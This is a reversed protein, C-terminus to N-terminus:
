RDVGARLPEPDRPIPRRPSDTWFTGLQVQRGTRPGLDVRWAARSAPLSGAGLRVFRGCSALRSPGDPAARPSRGSPRAAQRAPCQARARRWVRGGARGTRAHSAALQPGPPRAPRKRAGPLSPGPRTRAPPPPQTGRTGGGRESPRPGGEGGGRQAQAQPDGPLARRRRLHGEGERPSPRGRQWARSPTDPARLARKRKASKQPHFRTAPTYLSVAGSVGCSFGPHEAEKAFHFCRARRHAAPGGEAPDPTRPHPPPPAGRDGPDKM